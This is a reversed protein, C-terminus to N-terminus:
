LMVPYGKHNHFGQFEKPNLIIGQFIMPNATGTFHMPIWQFEMPNEAGTFHMPIWQFELPDRHMGCTSPPPHGTVSRLLRLSSRLVGYCEGPPHKQPNGRACIYVSKTPPAGSMLASSPRTADCMRPNISKRRM